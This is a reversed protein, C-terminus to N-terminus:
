IWDLAKQSFLFLFLFLFFWLRWWSFFKFVNFVTYLIFLFKRQPTTSSYKTANLIFIQLSFNLKKTLSLFNKYLLTIQSCTYSSYLPLVDVACKRHFRVTGFLSVHWVCVHWVEDNNNPDDGSHIEYAIENQGVIVIHSKMGRKHHQVNFTSNM